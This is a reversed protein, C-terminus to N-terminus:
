AAARSPINPQPTQRLLIRQDSERRFMSFFLRKLLRGNRLGRGPWRKLIQYALSRFARYSGAKYYARAYEFTERFVLLDWVRGLRPALAADEGLHDLWRLGQYLFKEYQTRASEKRRRLITVYTGCCCFDLRAALRIILEVDERNTMDERYMGFRLMDERSLLFANNHVGIERIFLDM